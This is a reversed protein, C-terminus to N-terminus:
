VKQKDIMSLLFRFMLIYDDKSIARENANDAVSQCMQLKQEATAQEWKNLDIMVM